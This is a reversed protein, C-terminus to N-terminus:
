TANLRTQLQIRRMPPESQLQFEVDQGSCNYVLSIPEEIARSEYQTVDVENRLWTSRMLARRAEEMQHWASVRRAAALARASAHAWAASLMM